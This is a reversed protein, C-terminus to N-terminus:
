VRHITTFELVLFVIYGALMVAGIPRAFSAGFWVALTLAVASGVMVGIEAPKVSGDDYAGGTSVWLIGMCLSLLFINSGVTNAVVIGMEGRSGSLVAIFKEPITTAISLIVVGALVDSIGFQSVLNTAAYSLVYASLIVALMGVILLGVHYTLSHVHTDRSGDTSNTEVPIVSSTEVHQTTRSPELNTMELSTAQAQDDTGSATNVVPSQPEGEIVTSGARQQDTGVELNGRSRRESAGDGDESDSSDSDSLQPASVYGNYITWAISLVYVAFLGIAVGGVVRWLIEHGFGTLGAILATLVLLLASYIKSSKDFLTGDDKKHFLLGLSFAGLINSITSGVINGIALSSRHRTISIVVM